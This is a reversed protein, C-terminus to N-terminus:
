YVQVKFNCAIIPSGWGAGVFYLRFILPSQQKLSVIGGERTSIEFYDPVKSFEITYIPVPNGSSDTSLYELNCAVHLGYDKFGKHSIVNGDKSVLAYEAYYKKSKFATVISIIIALIACVATIWSPWDITSLSTMKTRKQHRSSRQNPAAPVSACQSSLDM